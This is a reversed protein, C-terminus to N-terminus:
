DRERKPLRPKKELTPIPTQNPPRFQKNLSQPKPCLEGELELFTKIKKIITPHPCLRTSWPTCKILQSTKARRFAHTGQMSTIKVEIDVTEIPLCCRFYGYLFNCESQLFAPWRFNFCQFYIKTNISKRTNRNSSHVM